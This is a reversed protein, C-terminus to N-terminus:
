HLITLNFGTNVTLVAPANLSLSRVTVNSNIVQHDTNIIVDTNEDPVEGCTWNTKNEWSNSSTGTWSDEFKAIFEYGYVGDTICRYRFGYASSSLQNIVLQSTTTGSYTSTNSLNSFANGNSVQWQYTTGSLDANLTNSSAPPCFKVAQALLIANTSDAFLWSAGQSQYYDGPGGIIATNADASLAASSGQNAAGVAGTGVLKHGDQVWNGNTRTFTWAAGTSISDTPAGVLATNGDASLSVSWGQGAGATADTAFLKNGEQQWINGSRTFIWSAGGGNTNSLGDTDFPGGTILTNGDASLAVSTGQQIGGNSRLGGSGTLKNGQQSWNNGSQTFIWVAGVDNNDSVGGIAVTNGDASVSVASGEQVGHYQLTGQVDKTAIYGSGVLKVQEGWAGGNRKFIWAAGIYNNDRRGGIIATNGDASLGVSYGQEPTTSNIILSGSGVLKNGQQTWAGNADRTFIWAAGTFGNDGVGGEIITAGDASIAVAYGQAAGTGTAGTGVLKSGQQLWRNNNRTYVWVAGDHNNDFDGGTVATNGDASIAVSFGQESPNVTNETNSGYIKNGVQRNPSRATDIFINDSSSTSGFATRVIMGGTISNPMVMATIQTNSSNIILAPSAGFVVNLPNALNSGKITILSGVHGKLPALSTIIPAQASAPQLGTMLTVCILISLNCRAKKM